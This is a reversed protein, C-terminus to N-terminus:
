NSNSSNLLNNFIKNRLELEEYSGIDDIIGKNIVIIRDCLRLSTIRHSVIILLNRKFNDFINNVIKIENKSDLSSLAEDLILIEHKKYM